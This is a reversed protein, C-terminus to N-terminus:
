CLCLMFFYNFFIELCWVRSVAAMCFLIYGNFCVCFLFLKFFMELCWVRSVAAMRVPVARRAPVHLAIARRVAAAPELGVNARQQQLLSTTDPWRLDPSHSPWLTFPPFFVYFNDYPPTVSVQFHSCTSSDFSTTSHPLLPIYHSTHPFIWLWTPTSHYGHISTYIFISAIFAVRTM